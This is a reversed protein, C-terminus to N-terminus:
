GRRTRSRSRVPSCIPMPSPVELKFQVIAGRAWEMFSWRLGHLKGTDIRSAAKYLMALIKASDNVWEVSGCERETKRHEQFAELTFPTGGGRTWKSIVKNDPLPEYLGLGDATPAPLGIIAGTAMQIRAGLKPTVKGGRAEAVKITITAVGVLEALEEQTVDLIERLNQLSKAWNLGNMNKM